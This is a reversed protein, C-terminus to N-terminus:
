LLLLLLLLLRLAAQPSNTIPSMVSGLAESSKYLDKDRAQRLRGTLTSYM